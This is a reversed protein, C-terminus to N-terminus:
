ERLLRATDCRAAERGVVAAAERWPKGLRTKKKNKYNKRILMIEMKVKLNWNSTNGVGALIQFLAQNLPLPPWLRSELHGYQIFAAPKAEYCRRPRRLGFQYLLETLQFLDSGVHITPNISKNAVETAPSFHIQCRFRHRRVGAPLPSVANEFSYTLARTPAPSTPVALPSPARRSRASAPEIGLVGQSRELVGGGGSHDIGSCQALLLLRLVQADAPTAWLRLM